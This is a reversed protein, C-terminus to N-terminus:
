SKCTYMGATILAGLGVNTLWRQIDPPKYASSNLNPINWINLYIYGLYTKCNQGGFLNYGTTCDFGVTSAGDYYSGTCTGDGNDSLTVSQISSADCVAFVDMKLSMM